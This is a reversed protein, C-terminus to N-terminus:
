WSKNRKASKRKLIQRTTLTATQPAWAVSSPPHFSFVKPKRSRRQPPSRRGCWRATQIQGVFVVTSLIFPPQPSHRVDPVLNVSVEDHIWKYVFSFLYWSLCCKFTHSFLIVLMGDSFSTSKKEPTDPYLKGNLAKVASEFDEDSIDCLLM